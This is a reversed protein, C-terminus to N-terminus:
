QSQEGEAEAVSSKAGSGEQDRSKRKNYIHLLALLIAGYYFGESLIRYPDFVKNEQMNMLFIVVSAGLWLLFLTKFSQLLVKGM